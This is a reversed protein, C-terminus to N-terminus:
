KKRNSDYLVYGFLALKRSHRNLHLQIFRRRTSSRTWLCQDKDNMIYDKIYSIDRKLIYKYKFSSDEYFPRYMEKLKERFTARYEEDIQIFLGISSVIFQMCLYEKLLDFFGEKKVFATALNCQHTITIARADKANTSSPQNCEVRWHYMPDPVIAIKKARCMVKIMYPIDQYAAKPTEDMCLEESGLFDARYINTWVSPHTTIIEPHDSITFTNDIPLERLKCFGAIQENDQVSEITSNYLYFGCKCVDADLHKAQTYLKEYMDPEIWDDPEVIGVYEGKAEKFGLNVASGYGGNAKHIVRFRDDRAAYEEAIAGCNDPSGDNIIIFEIGTLTQAALSDLCERFYPEVNYTPVVVSVKVDYIKEM